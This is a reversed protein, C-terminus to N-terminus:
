SQDGDRQPRTNGPHDPVVGLRTFDDHGVDTRGLAHCQGVVCRTPWIRQRRHREIDAGM